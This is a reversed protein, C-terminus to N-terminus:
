VEKNRLMKIVARISTLSLSKMVKPLGVSDKLAMSRRTIPFMEESDIVAEIIVPGSATLAKKVLPEIQDPNNIRLGTAGFANAVAVFDIESFTSATIRGQYSLEQVDHIAALRNNKLIVWIVPIKYDVATLVEMGTMLFDGDGCICVAPQDPNGLKGGIAAVVSSGMCAMGSPLFNLGEPYSQFYRLIWSYTNGMDGFIMADRPLSNRLERMLRQPKMPVQDSFSDSENFFDTSKKLSTLDRIAKDPFDSLYSNISMLAERADAV